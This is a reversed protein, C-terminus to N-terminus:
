SNRKASILVIHEGRLLLQPLHRKIEVHKRGLSKVNQQPLIIGLQQLLKTCDQPEQHTVLKDEGYKYKRYELCEVVNVMLLNWHRDFMKIIGEVYGKIGHERRIVVRATVNEKILLQLHKLPGQAQEMQMLLNRQHKTKVRPGTRIAMQHDQFRRQTTEDKMLFPNQTKSGSAETNKPKKGLGMIGVKKLATEFAAMNQYIVKPEKETVRYDPAYLAKLPNFSESSIDLEPDNNISQEKKDEVQLFESKKDSSEINKNENERTSKEM